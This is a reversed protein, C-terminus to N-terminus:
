KIRDKEPPDEVKEKTVKLEVVKGEVKSEEKQPELDALYFGQESAAWKEQLYQVNKLVARAIEIKQGVTVMLKSYKEAIKEFEFALDSGTGGPNTLIFGCFELAQYDLALGKIDSAATMAKKLEETMKIIGMWQTKSWLVYKKMFDLLFLGIDNASFNGPESIEWKTEAFEKMAKDFDEKFQAVEEPTPKNKEKKDEDKVVQLKSEKKAM